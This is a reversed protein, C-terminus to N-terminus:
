AEQAGMDQVADEAWADIQASFRTRSPLVRLDKLVAQMVADQNDLPTDILMQALRAPRSLGEGLKDEVLKSRQKMGNLIAQATPMYDTNSSIACFLVHCLGNIDTQSIEPLYIMSGGGFETKGISELFFCQSCFCCATVMNSLKNNQYDQDLNVIDQFLKAQFGCFQCTHHDRIFIKDRFVAFGPDENRLCFLRWADIKIDLNIPHFGSM